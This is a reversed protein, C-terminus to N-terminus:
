LTDSQVVAKISYDEIIITQKSIQKLEEKSHTVFITPIHFETAMLKYLDLLQEKKKSDLSANPEDMLLLKPRSLIARGIAVRSKEGGSLKNPKRDLLAEIGLISIINDFNIDNKSGSSSRCGAERKCGYLLNSKVSLHPFLKTDQFIVGVNRQHIPQNINNESNFLVTDSIKIYGADPKIIGAIMNIFTSKGVGSDGFVGLINFNDIKVKYNFSNDGLQKKINIDLTNM